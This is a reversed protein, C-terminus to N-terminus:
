KSFLIESRLHQEIDDLSRKRNNFEDPSCSHRGQSMIIKRWGSVTNKSLEYHATFNVGDSNKIEIDTPIKLIKYSDDLQTEFSEMVSLPTCATHFKRFGVSYNELNKEVYIAVALRPNVPVSGNTTDTLLRQLEIQADLTQVLKEVQM